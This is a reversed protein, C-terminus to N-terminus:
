AICIAIPSLHASLDPFRAVQHSFIKNIKDEDASTQNPITHLQYVRIRSALGISGIEQRRLDSLTNERMEALKLSCCHPTMNLHMNVPAQRLISSDTGRTKPVM